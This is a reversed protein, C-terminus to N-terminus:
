GERAVPASWVRMKSLKFPNARGNALAYPYMVDFLNRNGIVDQECHYKIDQYAENFEAEHPSRIKNWSTRYIATKEGELGFYDLLNGLGKRTKIALGRAVQYTDFYLHAHMPKMGHFMLRSNMWNADFAAVNHGILIDYKSLANAIEGMVRRDDTRDDFRLGLTQPFGTNLPLISCLIMFGSYGETGFDTVEIDYVAANMMVRPAKPRRPSKLTEASHEPATKHYAEPTGEREHTTEVADPRTAEDYDRVDCSFRKFGRTVGVADYIEAWSMGARWLPAAEKVKRLREDNKKRGM